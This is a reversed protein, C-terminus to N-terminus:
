IRVTRFSFDTDKMLPTISGFAEKYEAKAAEALAEPTYSVTVDGARFSSVEDDTYFARLRLRYNALAACAGLVRPDRSDVGDKLLTDVERMATFCFAKVDNESAVDGYREKFLSYVSGFDTM